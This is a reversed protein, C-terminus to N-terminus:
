GAFVAHGKIKKCQPDSFSYWHVVWEREYSCLLMDVNDLRISSCKKDYTIPLTIGVIVVTMLDTTLPSGKISMFTIVASFNSSVSNVNSLGTMSKSFPVPSCLVM